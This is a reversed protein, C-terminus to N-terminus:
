NAATRGHPRQALRTFDDIYDQLRGLALARQHPTLTRELEIVLKVREAYVRRALREYEPDRGKNWAILWGRLKQGFAQRDEGREAMLRLFERQRRVRDEYRLKETMPMADTAAIVQHEQEHSLPGVWDRIQHLTRRARARKIDDPSGNLRYERVFRRNDKDWRQKLVELQAPTLTYLLVVADDTARSVIRAYREKVGDVFWDVDQPEISKDLRQRAQALFAAYDPLEQYRHWEHLRDFRRQFDDKQHSELDFYENAKWAAYTDLYGYGLRMMSCGPLVVLSIALM